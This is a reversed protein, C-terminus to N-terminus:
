PEPLHNAEHTPGCEICGPLVTTTKWEGVNSICGVTVCVMSISLVIWILIYIAYVM